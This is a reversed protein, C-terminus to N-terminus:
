QSILESKQTSAYQWKYITTILSGIIGTWMLAPGLLIKKEFVVSSYTANIDGIMDAVIKFHIIIGALFVLFFFIHFKTTTEM